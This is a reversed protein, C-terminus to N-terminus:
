NSRGQFLNVFRKSFNIIVDKHLVRVLNDVFIERSPCASSNVARIEHKNGKIFDQDELLLAVYSAKNVSFDQIAKVSFTVHSLMIVITDTIGNFVAVVEM